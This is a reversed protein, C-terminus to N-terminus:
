RSPSKVAPHSSQFASHPHAPGLLELQLPRAPEVREVRFGARALRDALERRAGWRRLVPACEIVAGAEDQVWGACISGRTARYLM